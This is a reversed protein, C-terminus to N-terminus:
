RSKNVFLELYKGYGEKELDEKPIFRLLSFDFRKISSKLLIKSNFHELM